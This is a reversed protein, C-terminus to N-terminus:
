VVRAARGGPAAVHRGPHPEDEAVGELAELEVADLGVDLGVVGGGEGEDAAGAELALAERGAVELDAAAPAVVFAPGDQAFVPLGPSTFLSCYPAGITSAPSRMKLRSHAPASQRASKRKPEALSRPLCNSRSSADSRSCSSSSRRRAASSAAAPRGSTESAVVASADAAFSAPPSRRPESSSSSYEGGDTAAVGQSPRSKFASAHPM